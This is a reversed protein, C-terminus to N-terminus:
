IEKKVQKLVLHKRIGECYIEDSELKIPLTIRRNKDCKINDYCCASLLRIMNKYKRKEEISTTQKEQHLFSNILKLYDKRNLLMTEGLIELIVLEDNNEAWTFEPLQIRKKSDIKLIENGIIQKEGFM